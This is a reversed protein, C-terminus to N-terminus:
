SLLKRNTDLSILRNKDNLCFLCIKAAPIRELNKTQQQNKKKLRKLCKWSNSKEANPERFQLQKLNRLQKLRKLQNKALNEKEIECHDEDMKGGHKLIRKVTRPVFRQFLSLSAMKLTLRNGFCTTQERSEDEKQSTMLLRALREDRRADLKRKIVDRDRRKKMRKVKNIRQGNRPTNDIQLRNQEKSENNIVANWFDIGCNECPLVLGLDVDVDSELKGEDPATDSDAEYNRSTRQLFWSTRKDTYSSWSTRKDTYQAPLKLQTPSVSLEATTTDHLVLSPM